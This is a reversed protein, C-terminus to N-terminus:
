GYEFFLLGRLLIEGGLLILNSFREHAVLLLVQESQEKHIKALLHLLRPLDLDVLLFHLAQRPTRASFFAELTLDRFRLKHGAASDRRSTEDRGWDFIIYIEHGERASCANQQM